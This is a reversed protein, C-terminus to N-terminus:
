SAPAPKLGAAQLARHVSARGIGLTKAVEAVNKGEKVLAVVQDAKARATPKRGRYVGAEKAKEIGERQRELMMEREFQAFGAFVTLILKGTASKTDVTDGGLNPVRLGVSKSELEQVIEWLRTTSRALGIQTGFEELGRRNQASGHEPGTFNGM